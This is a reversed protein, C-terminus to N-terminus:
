RTCCWKRSRCGKASTSGSRRGDRDAASVDRRGGPQPERDRDDRRRQLFPFVLGRSAGNFFRFDMDRFGHKLYAERQMRDPVLQAYAQRLEQEIARDRPLVGALLARPRWVKPFWGFGAPM